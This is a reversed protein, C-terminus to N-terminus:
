LGEWRKTIGNWHRGNAWAKELGCLDRHPGDRGKSKGRFIRWAPLSRRQAQTRVNAPPRQSLRSLQSVTIVSNGDRTASTALPPVIEALKARADFWM